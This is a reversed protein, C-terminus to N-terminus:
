ASLLPQTVLPEGIAAGQQHFLQNYSVEFEDREVCYNLHRKACFACFSCLFFPFFIGVLVTVLIDSSSAGPSDLLSSATFLGGFALIFMIVSCLYQKAALTTKTLGAYIAVVGLIVLLGGTSLNVWDTIDNTAAVIGNILGLCVFFVGFLRINLASKEVARHPETYVPVNYQPEQPPPQYYYGQQIQRAIPVSSMINRMFIQITDGDVVPRPRCEHLHVNDDLEQGLFFLRQREPPVEIGSTMQLRVKVDIVKANREIEVPFIQGTITQVRIAIEGSKELPQKLGGDQRGDGLSSM